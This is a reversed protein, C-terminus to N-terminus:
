LGFYKLIMAFIMLTFSFLVTSLLIALAWEKNKFREITAIIGSIYCVFIFAVIIVIIPIGAITMVADSIM